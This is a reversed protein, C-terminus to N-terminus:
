KLHSQFDDYSKSAELAGLRKDIGQLNADSQKKLDQYATARADLDESLAPDPGVMAFIGLPQRLQARQAQRLASAYTTGGRGATGSNSLAV